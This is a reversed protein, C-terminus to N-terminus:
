EKVNEAEASDQYHSGLGDYGYPRLVATTTPFFVIQCIKMGSKLTFLKDSVNCIELTLKWRWGPDVYGAFEIIVGQRALSSKGALTAVVDDGLEIRESTAGLVFDRPRLDYTDTTVNGDIDKFVNDLHLDVSAPQICERKPYPFIVIRGSDLANLITLDSFIM